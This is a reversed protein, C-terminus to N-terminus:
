LKDVDFSSCDIKHKASNLIEYADSLRVDHSQIVQLVETVISNVKDLYEVGYLFKINTGEEATKIRSNKKM